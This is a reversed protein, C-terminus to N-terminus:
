GLAQEENRRAWLEFREGTGMLIASDPPIIQAHRWVRLPIFIRQREEWTRQMSLAMFQRPTLREERTRLKERMQEAWQHWPQPPYVVLAPNGPLPSIWVSEVDRTVLQKLAWNPIRMRGREQASVESHGYFPTARSDNETM